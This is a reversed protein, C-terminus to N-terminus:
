QIQDARCAKNAPRAQTSQIRHVTATPNSTSPVTEYLAVKTDLPESSVAHLKPRVKSPVHIPERRM